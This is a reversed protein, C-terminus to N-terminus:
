KAEPEPTQKTKDARKSRVVKCGKGCNTCSWHGLSAYEIPTPDSMKGGKKKRTSPLPKVCPPKTAPANCCLSVYSFMPTKM